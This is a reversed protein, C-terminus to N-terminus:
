EFGIFCAVAQAYGQREDHRWYRRYKLKRPGDNGPNYALQELEDCLCDGEGLHTYTTLNWGGLGNQELAISLVEDSRQTYAEAALLVGWIPNREPLGDLFPMQASQFLLWGQRPTLQVLKEWVTQPTDIAEHNAKYGGQRLAPLDYDKNEAAVRRYADLIDMMRDGQM